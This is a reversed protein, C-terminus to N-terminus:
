RPASGALDALSLLLAALDEVLPGVIPPVSPDVKGYARLAAPRSSLVTSWWASAWASLEREARGGSEALDIGLRSAAAEASALVAELSRRMREGEGESFGRREWNEIWERSENVLMRVMVRLHDRQATTLRVGASAEEGLDTQARDSM